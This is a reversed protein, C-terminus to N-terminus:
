SEIETLHKWYRVPMFNRQCKPNVRERTAMVDFYKKWLATYYSESETTQLLPEPAVSKSKNESGAFSEPLTSKSKTGPGAHDSSRNESGAFNRSVSPAKGPGKPKMVDAPLEAVEWKRKYAFLAKERALDHIIIPESKFRDSFHPALFELIDNDPEIKAYLLLNNNETNLVESFRILGCMRHVELGVRREAAEVAKVVPDGHLLRIKSGSKFGFEIYRVLKMEKEPENSCFVQYVRQADGKSIKEAIADHVRVARGADTEVTMAYRCLDLQYLRDPFIGEAKETYWHHYVCTLFGEYTKDYIYNM